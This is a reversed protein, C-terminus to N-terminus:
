FVESKWSEFEPKLKEYMERRRKKAEKEFDIEAVSNVMVCIDPFRQDHVFIRIEGNEIKISCSRNKSNEQVWAPFENLDQEQMVM